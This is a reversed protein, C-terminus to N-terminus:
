AGSAPLALVFDISVGPPVASGDLFRAPFRGGERYDPSPFSARVMAGVPSPPNGGFFAGFASDGPHFVGFVRGDGPDPDTFDIPPAPRTRIQARITALEAPIDEVPFLTAAAVHRRDLGRERELADLLAPLDTGTRVEVLFLRAATADDLRVPATFGIVAFTNPSFGHHEESGRDLGHLFARLGDLRPLAPVGRATFGDPVVITGDARVLRLSPFPNHADLPDDMFIAEPGRPTRRPLGALICFAASAHVHGRTTRLQRTAVLAYTAGGRLARVPVVRLREAVYDHLVLSEVDAGLVDD